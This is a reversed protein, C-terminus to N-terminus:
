LNTNQQRSRSIDQKEQSSLDITKLFSVNEKKWDKDLKRAYATLGFGVWNKRILKKIMQRLSYFKEHSFIQGKQADLLSFQIPQFVIHHADYLAWDDFKIRNEDKIKQYFESGPYPTLILFQASTLYARIAFNVNAKVTEWNDQDFGHVFM